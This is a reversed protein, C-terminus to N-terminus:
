LRCAYFLCPPEHSAQRTNRNAVKLDTSGSSERFEKGRHYYAIWWLASGKQQYTRRDGSM